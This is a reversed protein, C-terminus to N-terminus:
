RLSPCFKRFQFFLRWVASFRDFAGAQPFGVTLIQSLTDALAPFRWLYLSIVYYLTNFAASFEHCSIGNKFLAKMGHM